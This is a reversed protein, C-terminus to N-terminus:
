HGEELPNGLPDRGQLLFMALINDTFDVPVKTAPEVVTFNYDLVAGRLRTYFHTIKEGPAQQMKIADFRRQGTPTHLVTVARASKILDAIPM